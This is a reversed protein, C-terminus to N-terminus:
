TKGGHLIADHILVAIEWAVWWLLGAVIFAGLIGLSSWCRNRRRLEEFTPRGSM